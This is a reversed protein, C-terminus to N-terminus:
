TTSVKNKGIISILLPNIKSLTQPVKKIKEHNLAITIPYQFCKDDSNIMM